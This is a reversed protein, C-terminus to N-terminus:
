MCLKEKISKQGYAALSQHGSKDDPESAEEFPTHNVIDVDIPKDWKEPHDTPQQVQSEEATQPLLCSKDKVKDKGLLALDGTWACSRIHELHMLKIRYSLSFLFERCIIHPYFIHQKRQMWQQWGHILQKCKEKYFFFRILM